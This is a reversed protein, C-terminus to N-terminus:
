QADGGVFTDELTDAVGAVVDIPFILEDHSTDGVPMAHRVWYRDGWKILGGCVKDSLTECVRPLIQEPLIGVPSQIRIWPTGAQSEISEVRVFQSRGDTWFKVLSISDGNDDQINDSHNSLLFDRVDDWSDLSGQTGPNDSSSSVPADSVDESSPIQFSEGCKQCKARKGAKDDSLQYTKGCECTVFITM